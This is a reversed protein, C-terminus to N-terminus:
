QALRITVPKSGSEEVAKTAEESLTGLPTLDGSHRYDMRFLALNGWPIYYTLSGRLPHCEVPATGLKLRKPLMAIRENSAFNEFELTLPLMTALHKAADNDMLQARYARGEIVFEIDQSMAPLATGLCAAAFLVTATKKM